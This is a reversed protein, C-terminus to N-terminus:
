RKKKLAIERVIRTIEERQARIMANIRYILYFILILALAFIVNIGIGLAAFISALFNPFIAFFAILFWLLTWFYFEGIPIKRKRYLALARSWAFIAFAVIALQWIKLAM